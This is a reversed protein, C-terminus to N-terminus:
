TMGGKIRVILTVSPGSGTFAIKFGNLAKDSILVDGVLGTNEKVEIEVSYYLNKRTKTLAITKPSDVSSNFPFRQSNTLTIEHIEGLVEADMLADNADSVRKQQLDAWSNVQGALVADQIGVEMNNFHEQDLLTGQQIVTGSQDEVHDLWYTRNYM